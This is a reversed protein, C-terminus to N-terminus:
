SNSPKSNTSHLLFRFLVNRLTTQRIRSSRGNETRTDSIANGTFSHRIRKDGRITLIVGVEHLVARRCLAAYAPLRGRVGHYGIAHRGVLSTLSFCWVGAAPAWHRLTREYASGDIWNYEAM